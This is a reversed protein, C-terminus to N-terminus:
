IGLPEIWWGDSPLSGLSEGPLLECPPSRCPPGGKLGGIPDKPYGVCSGRINIGGHYWGGTTYSTGFSAVLSGYM